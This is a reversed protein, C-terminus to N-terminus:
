LSTSKSSDKYYNKYWEVFRKIGEKIHITPKYNLLKRAKGIDAQTKSLDGPQMAIYKKNANIGLQKEILGVIKNLEISKGSGLNIIEYSFNKEIAAIIGNIIDDIYAFDRKIKGFNRIEIPEGQIIKQVFQYIATTPRCWPGYVTFFRLGVAQIKYLYHYTYAILEDFKKTVAYLSFPKDTNYIEKFPAKNNGYIMSSSAFVIKPTKFEKALEFINMTGLINTKKYLELNFELNTTAALHCIVDFKYKKFIRILGRTDSLELNYFIYDEPNLFQSLRAKKLEINHNSLRDVIVVKYKKEILKKALHSGIFGAGGTILITKSM